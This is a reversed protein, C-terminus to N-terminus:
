NRYNQRSRRLHSLSGLPSNFSFMYEDPEKFTMGDLEFRNVFQKMQGPRGQACVNDRRGRCLRKAISSHLRTQLDEWDNQPMPSGDEMYPLNDKFTPLKLRISWSTSGKPSLQGDRGDEDRGRDKRGRRGFFRSYGEEKLHLM